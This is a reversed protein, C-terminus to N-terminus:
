FDNKIFNDDACDLLSACHCVLTCFSVGSGSKTEFEECGFVDFDQM